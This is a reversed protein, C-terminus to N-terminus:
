ESCLINIFLRMDIVPQPSITVKQLWPPCTEARPSLWAGQGKGQLGPVPSCAWPCGMAPLPTGPPAAHVRTRSSLFPCSAPSLTHSVSLPTYPRRLWSSVCSPWAGARGAVVERGMSGAWSWTAEPSGQEPRLQCCCPRDGCGPCPTRTILPAMPYQWLESCGWAAQRLPTPCSPAAGQGAPVARRHSATLFAVPWCLPFADM